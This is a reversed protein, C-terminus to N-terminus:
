RRAIVSITGSSVARGGLLLRAACEHQRRLSAQLPRNGSGAADRAVESLMMAASQEATVGHAIATSVVAMERERGILAGRSVHEGALRRVSHPVPLPAQESNLLSRHVVTLVRSRTPL